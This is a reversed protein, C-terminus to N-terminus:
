KMTRYENEIRSRIIKKKGTKEIIGARALSSFIRGTVATDIVPFDVMMKAIDSPYFTKFKNVVNIFETHYCEDRLNSM